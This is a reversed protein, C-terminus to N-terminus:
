KYRGHQHIIIARSPKEIFGTFTTPPPPRSGIEQICPFNYTAMRGVGTVLNKEFSHDSSRAYHMMWKARMRNQVQM